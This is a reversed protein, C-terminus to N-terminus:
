KVGFFTKLNQYDSSVKKLADQLYNATTKIIELADNKAKSEIGTLIMKGLVDKQLKNKLANAQSIVKELPNPVANLLKLMNLRNIKGMTKKYLAALEKGQPTNKDIQNGAFALLDKTFSFGTQKFNDLMIPVINSSYSQNLQVIFEKSIDELTRFVTVNEPDNKAIFNEANKMLNEWKEKQEETIPETILNHGFTSFFASLLQNGLIEKKTLVKEPEKLTRYVYESFTFFNPYDKTTIKIATDEIFIKLQAIVDNTPQIKKLEDKLNNIEQMTNDIKKAFPDLPSVINQLKAIELKKGVEEIQYKLESHKYIGNIFKIMDSSVTFGKTQYQPKILSKINNNYNQALLNILQDSIQKLKEADESDKEKKNQRVFNQVDQIVDTWAKSEVPTIPTTLLNEKAFTGIHRNILSDLIQQQTKQDALINEINGILLLMASLYLLKKAQM